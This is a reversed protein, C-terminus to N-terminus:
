TGHVTVWIADSGVVVGDPVGHSRLLRDVKNTRPDIRVVLQKRATTVWVAGQIATIGVPGGDINITTVIGNTRPDIRVVANGQASTVWVADATAAIGSPAFRLSISSVKSTNPDIRSVSDDLTNAVWVAGAGFAISQPNRGVPISVFSNTQPDVRAVSDTVTNTVWAYNGGFVVGDAGDGVSITAALSNDNVNFRLLSGGVGGNQGFGTTIWVSGGGVAIGTPAGGVSLTRSVTRTRADIRSVTQDSFNLAWVNGDAAAIAQPREGVKIAAVFKGVRADIVGVSNEGPPLKAAAGGPRSLLVAAVAVAVVIAAATTLTSARQWRPRAEKAIEGPFLIPAEESRFVDLAFLRWSGPVGKLDHEGREVFRLDSGAVLDRMTSSILVEGAQAKSAVRAGINVAIGGVKQGMVEVEGLHLGARTDIGLPHVQESISAACRIGAAPQDFIAFFGDGATDIERGGFRKLERRIILNHRDLLRRWQHDGLEVTKETSGAIDTFMVTALFREPGVNRRRVFPAKM